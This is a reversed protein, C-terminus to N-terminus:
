DKIGLGMLVAVTQEKIQEKEDYSYGGFRGTRKVLGLISSVMIKSLDRLEKITSRAERVVERTEAEFGTKGFKLKSIRELNAFFLFAVSIIGMLWM